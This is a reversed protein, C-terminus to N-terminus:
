LLAAAICFECLCAQKAYLASPLPPSWLVGQLRRKFVQADINAHVIIEDLTHPALVNILHAPDWIVFDEINHDTATPLDNMEVLFNYTSCVCAHYYGLDM